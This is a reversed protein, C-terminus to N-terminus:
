NNLIFNQKCGLADMIQLNITYATSANTIEIGNGTPNLQYQPEGNIVQVDLQYPAQGNLITISRIEFGENNKGTKTELNLNCAPVECGSEIIKTLVIDDTAAVKISFKGSHAQNSLNNEFGDAMRFHNDSCNKFDYDEFGDFGIQRYRANAAVATALTQNYGFTSSTYRNLPDVTELAQGFPSFESVKSTFTWNQRDVNWTGNQVKFFPSFSTMFGDDRINSNQNVFAQTRDTLHVYSTLPRWTGKTGRVYPNSTYLSSDKSAFCDCFTRWDESFETASAQLVNEYFNSEITNLPNSRLTVTGIPTMQTNRRGSRIVRIYPFLGSVLEGDKYQLKAGNANMDTVWALSEIGNLDKLLIEDGKVLSANNLQSSGGSVFSVNQKEYDMNIYAQGMRDYYWHAPVTLNYVADNFNTQTKTLIVAGTEADYALNETRVVSKDDTAITTDLLGFREIVKTFTASRMVTREYGFQGLGTPVFPIPVLFNINFQAQANITQSLSKRFDALADYQLGIRSHSNVTGDKAITKVKNILRKVLKGEYTYNQSKYKYEVSSQPSTQGEAYVYQGKPKGHMDNTEVVFGQSAVLQHLSFKFFYAPISINNPNANLETFRVITPFEKATYFEHVVKGTATKTVGTHQLNRITVMEYGIQASPFFQEGYPKLQFNREDPALVNRKSFFVPQQFPNEDGGLQPEYAAVGSSKGSNNKYIYEQGYYFEKMQNNTLSDWADYIKIQRVRYGGGLKQQNPNQLRIWSKQIRLKTGIDQAWLMGNPGTFYEGFSAAAGIIADVVGGIPQTNNGDGLNNSPPIFKSLHMRGFQIGAIAIPNYEALGFDKLKAPKFKIEGVPQGNLSSISINDIEAFGPVFDYRNDNFKMLARFYIMPDEPIYDEINTHYGGNGDPLLEFYLKANPINPLLLSSLDEDGSTTVGNNNEVGIIKFMQNARKHQVYAYDDSEYKVEIKGGSPLMIDTLNWASAYLDVTAKNFDVYPYDSPRLPSDYVNGNYNTPYPKYSGWRDMSKPHYNPNYDYNFRYPSFRGKHSKEYTFYVKKLTLKGNDSSNPNANLPYNKCLSYDYVFHAVKIPKANLGNADFDPTAFLSISDLKMMKSGTTILVGNSDMANGDARESTHFVAIHNKSRITTLYWMEKEGFTYHGKDDKDDTHFGEDYNALGYGIIPSRWQYNDVKFYDLKLYGGLDGPSPGKTTDVDVYDANLVTTLLYSHAYAPTTEKNFYNDTGKNNSLSNDLGVEYNVMGNSNELNGEVAFSVNSQFHNYAAIGYVYRSGETNLVTFQGVHHNLEPRSFAYNYSHMRQIGVGSRLEFNSLTSTLQNRKLKGSKTYNPDDFQYDNNNDTELRNRIGQYLSYDFKVAMDSGIGNFHNIDTEVSLENAEQYNIREKSFALNQIAQNQFDSWCGSKNSMNSVSVDVGSKFTTGINTEFDFDQSVSKTYQSPDFVFGIENRKPRYSGGIGHGSASFVDHSLIPIALAPTNKTIAGDNERTFDLMANSNFQGLGLNNYGFAPSSRRNYRLWSSSYSAGVLGSPDTGSLDPGFKVSFSRSFMDIPMPVKPSFSTNGINFSSTSVYKSAFDTAKQAMSMAWKARHNQTKSTLKLGPFDAQVKLGQRSNFNAGINLKRLSVPSNNSKDNMYKLSPTISAGGASSGSFGLGADLSINKVPNRINLSQNASISSSYGQFNDYNISLNLSIFGLQTEDNSNEPTEFGLVEVNGGLNVGMTWNKKQNMETVISDSGNFDDPLGRLSRNMVGPNLNWGLGVWSAEQEMNAGGNYALNVPYGDVDMLPINYSFDGTFPDVMDSIGIPTFSQVEPQDPGGAQPDQSIPNSEPSGMKTQSLPSTSISNAQIKNIPHFKTSPEIRYSIGATSEFFILMALMLPAVQITGHKKIKKNM